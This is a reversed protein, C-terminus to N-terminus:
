AADTLGARNAETAEDMKFVYFLRGLLLMWAGYYTAEFIHEDSWGLAHLAAVDQQSVEDPQGVARLVFLLLALEDAPLRAGSPDRIVRAVEDDDLDQTMKLAASNFLTCFPFDGQASVLLRLHTRLDRSFRPHEGFYTTYEWWQKLLAPSTGLMQTPRPVFSVLQRVADFIPRIEESGCSEMPTSILAM